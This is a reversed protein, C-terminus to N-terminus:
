FLLQVRISLVAFSGPVHGHGSESSATTAAGPEWRTTNSFSRVRLRTRQRLLEYCTSPTVLLLFMVVSVATAPVMTRRPEATRRAASQNRETMVQELCYYFLHQLRSSLPTV